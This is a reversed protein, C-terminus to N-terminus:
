CGAVALNEHRVVLAITGCEDTRLVEAGTREYLDIATDTPHGYSNDHGVSVVAVEAGLQRALAPVQERSGHHALKVVDVEAIGQRRLEALLARQGVDELDGLLVTEIGASRIRVVVSSDNATVGRSTDATGTEGGSGASGGSLLVQWTATGAAGGDGSVAVHVPVGAAALERLARAANAEPEPLPSVLASTIERDQLVASLGGVHDLHFHTLVLLDVRTVGLRDLCRGADDGPPGVDVVVASTPGTRVVVGDGQGVDCAAIVWDTPVSVRTLVRPVTIVVAGATLCVALMWASWRRAGRRRDGGEQYERNQRNQRNPAGHRGPGVHGRGVPGGVGLADLVHRRRSRVRLAWSDPWGRPRWLALLVVVVITAVALLLVGTVGDPWPVIGGPLAAGHRAVQAIWWTAGGATWAAAHAGWAWWPALITAVLGLVTAPVVAPAALLNAPVSVWSVAPDLLVLIPGCAAQAAFPVAVAFACARGLWPALRSALLPVLLVLGATAAVSLAFGFSRSLAPDVVLLGIVTGALAPLAQSPRGLAMGVLTFCAMVAARVVSPEPRVLAVFAVGAIGLLLVRVWRPARLAGGLGTLLTMVIAFHGGSVATIHTLGTARMADDLPEPLRSTDGIAAGPVLGRAQPSLSATVKLLADRHRDLGRLPAPPPHRVIIRDATIAATETAGPWAERLGGRVTVVSAFRPADTATSTVLVRARADSRVGRAEVETVDLTFRAHGPTGEGGGDPRAARHASPVSELDPTGMRALDGPGDRVEPGPGHTGGWSFPTPETSVTGTLETTFGQQALRDIPAARTAIVTASATVALVCAGAVAVHVIGDRGSGARDAGPARGPFRTLRPLLLLAGVGIVVLVALWRCAGLPGEPGDTGTTAWAAAWAAAASPALRM